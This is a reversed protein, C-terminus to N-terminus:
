ETYIYSNGTDYVDSFLQYYLDNMLGFEFSTSAHEETVGEYCKLIEDYQTMKEETHIDKNYPIPNQDTHPTTVTTLSDCLRKVKTFLASILYM